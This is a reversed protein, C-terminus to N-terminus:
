IQPKKLNMITSYVYETRYPGRHSCRTMVSHRPPWRHGSSGNLGYKMLKAWGSVTSPQSKTTALFLFVRWVKYYMVLCAQVKNLRTCQCKWRTFCLAFLTCPEYFKTFTYIIDMYLFFQSFRTCLNARLRCRVTCHTSHPATAPSQPVCRHIIVRFVDRIEITVM